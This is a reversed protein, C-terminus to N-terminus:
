DPGAVDTIDYDLRLDLRAVGPIKRLEHKLTAADSHRGVRGRVLVMGDSVTAMSVEGGAAIVRDVVQRRLEWHDAREGPDDARIRGRGGVPSSLVNETMNTTGIATTAVPQVGPDPSSGPIPASFGKM